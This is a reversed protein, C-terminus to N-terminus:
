LVRHLPPFEVVDMGHVFPYKRVGLLGDVVVVVVIVVVRDLAEHVARM